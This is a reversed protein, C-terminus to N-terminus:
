LNYDDNSEFHSKNYMLELNFLIPVSSFKGAQKMVGGIEKWCKDRRTNNFYVPHRMNYLELYNPVRSTLVGVDAQWWM